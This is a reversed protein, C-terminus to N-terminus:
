LSSRAAWGRARYPNRYRTHPMRAGPVDTSFGVRNRFNRPRAKPLSRIRCPRPRAPLRSTEQPRVRGLALPPRRTAPRRRRDREHRAPRQVRVANIGTSSCSARPWRRRRHARPLAPRDLQGPRPLRRRRGHMAADRVLRHGGACTWIAARSSTPTRAPSRSGSRIRRSRRRRSRRSPACTTSATGRDRLRLLRGPEGRRPEGARHVRAPLPARGRPDREGPGLWDDLGGLLPPLHNDLLRRTAKMGAPAADITPPLAQFFARLEPSLAECSARPRRWSARRRACARHRGPRHRGRVGRPAHADRAVRAPLDPLDHVRGGAGRQAARHHRLRHERERDPGPAPGPARVLAGFVEGGDRVLKTSRRSRPTSCACSASPRTRSRSSAPSRWRCTTAAARPPRRGPGADLGQFAEQTSPDFTRFVEDLQVADSVQATPCTAARRCRDGVGRLGAHARRLDRRAADEPAPDGPHRQPDARLAADLELTAEAEGDPAASSGRSGHRGVRRLDARRGRRRAALGRQVPGDGQLGRGEAARPRRLRDLPVPAARLVLDRLRDRDPHPRRNPRDTEM